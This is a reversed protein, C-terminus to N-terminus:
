KLRKIQSRLKVLSAELKPDLKSKSPKQKNLIKYKFENVQNLILQLTQDDYPILFTSNQEPKWFHLYTVDTKNAKMQVLVQIIYRYELLLPDEPFVTSFPSKCKLELNSFKWDGQAFKEIIMGDSSAGVNENVYLFGPRIGWFYPFNEFFSNWADLEHENGYKIAPSFNFYPKAGTYWDYLKSPTEYGCACISPITSATFLPEKTEPDRYLPNHMQEWTIDHQPLFFHKYRNFENSM